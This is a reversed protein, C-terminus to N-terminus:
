NRRSSVPYHCDDANIAEAVQPVFCLSLSRQGFLERFVYIVFPRLWVVWGVRAHGQGDWGAQRDGGVWGM